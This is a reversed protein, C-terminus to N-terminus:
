WFYKDFLPDEIPETKKAIPLSRTALAPFDSTMVTAHANFFTKTSIWNDDDTESIVGDTNKAILYILNYFAKQNYPLANVFGTFVAIEHPANKIRRVIIQDSLWLVNVYNWTSYLDAPNVSLSLYFEETLKIESHSVWLKPDSYGWMKKALELYDISKLKKSLKIKSFM